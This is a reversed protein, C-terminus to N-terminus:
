EVKVPAPGAPLPLGGKVAERRCFLLGLSVLLCIGESAASSLWVGTEGWLASMVFLALAIFGVGRGLAVTMAAGARESAAFYGAAIVNFGVALFSFAYLSFAKVTAAFLEPEAAADIFASVAYRGLGQGLLFALVSCVAAAGMALRLLTRCTKADDMGHAYSVLPQTGQSIGTMTMVVLTNIYAIVTYSVVGEEGITSLITQNFLFTIIGVSAEAICDSFGLAAIRKYISLRLSFRCFRLTGKGRIFHLAFILASLVQAIGTAVAAGTVGWQFVMVFLWDLVINTVASTCVGVPSLRPFGDTKVMVEFSYSLIFFVNFSSVTGLYQKVYLLTSSTAGLFRAIPDLFILTLATLALSLVTLVATNMSFIRSGEERKGRGLLIAVTTSAGTGFLISAAFVGNVYPMAINVAGLAVPGVGKAVFIGDVMTYISYVWMAVISPLIYHFFKKVISM